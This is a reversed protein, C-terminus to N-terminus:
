RSGEGHPRYRGYLDKISPWVQPDVAKLEARLIALEQATCLVEALDLLSQQRGRYQGQDYGENYFSADAEIWWGTARDQCQFGDEEHVRVRTGLVPSYLGQEGPVPRAQWRGRDDRQYVTHAQMPHAQCIWYEEVGLDRYLDPKTVLDNHTTSRSLCEVVLRPLGVKEWQLMSEQRVRTGAPWVGLDPELRQRSQRVLPLDPLNWVSVERTVPLNQGTLGLFRLVNSKSVTLFEDHYANPSLRVGDEIYCPDTTGYPGYEYTEPAYAYDPDYHWFARLWAPHHSAAPAAASVTVDSSNPAQLNM